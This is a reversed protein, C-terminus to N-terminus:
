RRWILNSQLDGSRPSVSLDTWTLQNAVLTFDRTQETKEWNPYSSGEIRFRVSRKAEDVEYTGFHSIMGQIAARNEEISGELPSGGAFAPRVARMIQFSYAGNPDFIVIGKAQPGFLEYKTGDMRTNIISVLKWTGTIEEKLTKPASQALASDANGWLAFLSAIATIVIATIVVYVTRKV